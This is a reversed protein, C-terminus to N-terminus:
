GSVSIEAVFAGDAEEQWNYQDGREEAVMLHATLLYADELRRLEKINGWRGDEGVQKEGSLVDKHEAHYPSYNDAYVDGDTNCAFVADSTWGPLRVVWGNVNQKDTLNGHLRVNEKYVPVTPQKTKSSERLLECARILIASDTIKATFKLHHSM